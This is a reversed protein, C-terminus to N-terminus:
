TGRQVRSVCLQHAQKFFPLTGCPTLDHVAYRTAADAILQNKPELNRYHGGEIPNIDMKTAPPIVTNSSVWAAYIQQPSFPLEYTKEINKM